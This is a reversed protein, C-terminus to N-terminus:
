LCNGIQCKKTCSTCPPVRCTTKKYACSQCFKDLSQKSFEAMNMKNINLSSLPHFEHLCYLWQTCLSYSTESYHVRTLLHSYTVYMDVMSVLSICKAFPQSYHWHYTALYIAQTYKNYVVTLLLFHWQICYSLLGQIVATLMCKCHVYTGTCTLNAHVLSSTM